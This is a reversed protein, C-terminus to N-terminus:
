IKDKQSENIPLKNKIENREEYTLRFDSIEKGRIFKVLHNILIIM